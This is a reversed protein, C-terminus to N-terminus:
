SVKKPSTFFGVSPLPFREMYKLSICLQDKIRKCAFHRCLQIVAKLRAKFSSVFAESFFILTKEKTKKWFSLEFNSDMGTDCWIDIFIKKKEKGMRALGLPISPNNLVPHEKWLLRKALCWYTSKRYCHSLCKWISTFCLLNSCIAEPIERMQDQM